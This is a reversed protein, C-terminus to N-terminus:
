CKIDLIANITLSAVIVVVNTSASPDIQRCDDRVISTLSKKGYKKDM